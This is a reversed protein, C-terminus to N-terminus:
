ATCTALSIREASVLFDCNVQPTVQRAMILAITCSSSAWSFNLTCSKLQAVNNTEKSRLLGRRNMNAVKDKHNWEFLLLLLLSNETGEQFIIVCIYLLLTWYNLRTHDSFLYLLCYDVSPTVSYDGELYPNIIILPRFRVSRGHIAAMVQWCHPWERHVAIGHGREKHCPIGEVESQIEDLGKARLQPVRWLVAHRPRFPFRGVKVLGSPEGTLRPLDEHLGNELVEALTPGSLDQVSSGRATSRCSGHGTLQPDIDRHEPVPRKPGPCHHREGSGEAAKPCLNHLEPLRCCRERIHLRHYRLHLM